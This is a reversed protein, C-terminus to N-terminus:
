LGSASHYLKFPQWPVLGHGVMEPFQNPDCASDFAEAVAEAIAQHHGHMDKPAGTWRSVVVQPQVLRIARVLERIVNERGWNSFAAQANKSFGFDVFPGFICEGGDVARAALSEWTRFLGLAEGSYSNVVNQGGEGRTASWFVARGGLKRAVYVLLGTDEDDPHAGVHLVTAITGLRKLMYVLDLKNGATLGPM